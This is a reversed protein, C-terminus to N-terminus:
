GMSNQLKPGNAIKASHCLFCFVFFFCVLLKNCHSHFFSFLLAACPTEEYYRCNWGRMQNHLNQKETRLKHKKIWACVKRDIVSNIQVSTYPITAHMYQCSIRTSIHVKVVSVMTYRLSSHFTKHNFKPRISVGSSSFDTRKRLSFACMCKLFLLM